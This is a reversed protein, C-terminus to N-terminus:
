YGSVFWSKDLMELRGRLPRWAVGGARWLKWRGKGSEFRALCLLYPPQFAPTIAYLSVLFTPAPHVWGVTAHLTCDCIDISLGKQVDRPVLRFANVLQRCPVLAALRHLRFLHLVTALCLFLM